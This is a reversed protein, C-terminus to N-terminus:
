ASQNCFVTGGDSDTRNKPMNRASGYPMGDIKVLVGLMKALLHIARVRLSASRCLREHELFQSMM